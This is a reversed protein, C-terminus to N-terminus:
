ISQQYDSSRFHRPPSQSKPHKRSPVGRDRQEKSWRQKLYHLWSKIPRRCGDLWGIAEMRDYESRAFEAPVGITMAAKLAEIESTPLQHEAHKVLDKNQDGESPTVEDKDTESSQGQISELTRGEVHSPHPNTTCPNDAISSPPCWASLPTIRYLTTRGPREQRILLGQKVLFHLAQRVTQPHLRCVRAIKNIAPFAYDRGGRRAMHCYVRFEAPSLGYDDLRSHIFVPALDNSDARTSSPATSV